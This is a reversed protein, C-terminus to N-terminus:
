GGAAALFRALFRALSLSPLLSAEGTEVHAFVDTVHVQVRAGSAKLTAALRYSEEPEIIPDSAGHLLFIPASPARGTNGPSLTRIDAAMPALIAAATKPDIPETSIACELLRQGAASLGETGGSVTDGRLLRQLARRLMTRDEPPLLREVNGRFVLRRGEVFPDYMGPTDRPPSVMWSTLIRELSEYGGLSLV